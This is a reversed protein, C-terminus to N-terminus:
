EIHELFTALGSCIDDYFDKNGKQTDQTCVTACPHSAYMPVLQGEHTSNTLQSKNTHLLKGTSKLLKNCVDLLM